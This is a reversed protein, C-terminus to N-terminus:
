EHIEFPVYYTKGETHLQKSETIALTLETEYGTM